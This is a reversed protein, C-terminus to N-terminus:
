GLKALDIELLMLTADGPYSKSVFGMERELLIAERHARDEISQLKKFGMDKAARAVHELLTWSVGKHKYDNHVALAVEANEHAADSALMASAILRKNTEDFALFNETQRHDVRTMMAIVDKGVNKLASLFRFRLDDRTLSSLLGALIAEDEPIAPRVLLPVGDRTVLRTPQATLTSAIIQHSLPPLHDGRVLSPNPM